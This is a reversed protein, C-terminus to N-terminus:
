EVNIFIFCYIVKNVSNISFDEHIDYYIVKNKVYYLTCINKGRFFFTSYIIKLIYKDLVCRHQLALQHGHPGNGAPRLFFLEIPQRRVTAFNEYV